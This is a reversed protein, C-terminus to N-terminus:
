GAAAMDRQVTRNLVELFDTANAPFFGFGVTQGGHM